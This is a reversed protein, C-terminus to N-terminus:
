SLSTGVHFCLIHGHKTALWEQLLGVWLPFLFCVSICFESCSLLCKIGFVAKYASVVMKLVVMCRWVGSCCHCQLWLLRM